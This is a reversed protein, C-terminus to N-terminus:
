APPQDDLCSAVATGGVILGGIAGGLAGVPGGTGFGVLAGGGVAALAGNFTNQCPNEQALVVTPAATETAVTPAAVASGAMPVVLAVSAGATLLLKRLM